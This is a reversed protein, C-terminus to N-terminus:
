EFEDDKVSLDIDKFNPNVIRKFRVKTRRFNAVIALPLNTQKLYSLAQKFFKPSYFQQAKIELIILDEIAFDLFYRGISKGEYLLKIPVERKFKLKNKKLEQEIARQYYKELLSPGLENHVRFLIGMIKFSLKPLVLKSM